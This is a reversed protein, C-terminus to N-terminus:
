KLIRTTKIFNWWVRPNLTLLLNLENQFFFACAYCKVQPLYDWAKQFGEKLFNLVKIQGSLVTCPYVRGNADIFCYLDGARCPIIRFGNYKKKEDKFLISSPHKIPWDRIYEHTKNSYYIPYGAKKYDIIKQMIKASEKKPIRGLSYNEGIKLRGYPFHFIALFGKEKALQCIEDVSDSNFINLVTCTSVPIKNKVALEIAKIVRDYNQPGRNRNHQKENGDLSINISTINKLTDINNELLHGNTSMSCKMGKKVTIYDVIKKIDKRILPEGGTLNILRTGRAHLENILSIMKETTIDDSDKNNYAAFCYSCKLNCRNTVSIAVHAPFRRGTLKYRLLNAIFKADQYSFKKM